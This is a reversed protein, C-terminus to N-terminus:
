KVECKFADEPLSDANPGIGEWRTGLEPDWVGLAVTAQGPPVADFTRMDRVVEGSRWQTLPFLDGVPHGDAQGIRHGDSGLLHVFVTPSGAVPGVAQWLM